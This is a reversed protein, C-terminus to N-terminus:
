QLVASIDCRNEETARPRSSKSPNQMNIPKYTMITYFLAHSTMAQKAHCFNDDDCKKTVEGCYRSTQRIISRSVVFRYQTLTHKCYTINRFNLGDYGRFISKSRFEAVNEVLRELFITHVFFGTPKKQDSRQLGLPTGPGYNLPPPRNFIM